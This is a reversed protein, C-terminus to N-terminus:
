FILLLPLLEFDSSPILPNWAVLWQGSTVSGPIFRSKLFKAARGPSNKGNKAARNSGMEHGVHMSPIGSVFHSPVRSKPSAPPGRGALERDM